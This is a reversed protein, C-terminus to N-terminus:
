ITALDALVLDRSEDDDIGRAIDRAQAVEAEAGAHDGAIRLARGLAEHGVAADFASLAHEEAVALCRRAHWAAPEARGLTAYVRSCQWRTRARLM